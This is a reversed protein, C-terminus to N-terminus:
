ELDGASEQQLAKFREGALTLFDENSSRLAEAALAKFADALKGKADELLAKQEDLSKQAAEAQAEATARDAAAARLDDQLKEAERRGGEVQRRLEETSGEQAAMRARARTGAWFWAVAGGAVIGILFWAIEPM